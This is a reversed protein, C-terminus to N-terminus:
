VIGAAEQWTDSGGYPDHEVRGEGSCEDCEYSPKEESTIVGQGDCLWCKIGTARPPESRYSM